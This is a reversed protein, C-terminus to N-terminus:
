VGHQGLEGGSGVYALRGMCPQAALSACVFGADDISQAM